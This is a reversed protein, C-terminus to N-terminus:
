KYGYSAEDINAIVTDIEAVDSQNDGFWDIFCGYHCDSGYGSAQIM